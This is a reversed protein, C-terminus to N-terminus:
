VTQFQARPAIYIYVLLKSAQVTIKGRALTTDTEQTDQRQTMESVIELVYEVVSLGFPQDASILDGIQPLPTNGNVSIHLSTLVPSPHMAM